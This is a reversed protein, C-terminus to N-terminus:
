EKLFGYVGKITLMTNRKEQTDVLERVREAHTETFKRPRGSQPIIKLAEKGGKNWLCVWRNVAKSSVGFISAVKQVENEEIMLMRICLFRQAQKVKKAEKSWKYLDESTGFKRTPKEYPRGM